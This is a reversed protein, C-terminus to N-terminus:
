FIDKQAWNAGIMPLIIELRAGWLPSKVSISDLSQWTRNIGMEKDYVKLLRAWTKKFVDLKNWEQFRRHCISGSGYEKPIMKWQCGETRLVHLIGDLVKRYPVVSRGVTKSPREKPLIKKFVNWLGDPITMIAPHNSINKYNRVEEKKKQICTV